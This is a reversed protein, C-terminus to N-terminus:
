QVRSPLQARLALVENELDQIRKLLQLTVMTANADLDFDKRLRAAIRALVLCQASFRPQAPEQDAAAEVQALPFLAQCEVLLQLEDLTLGSMAELEALSFAQQGDLALGEIIELAVKV